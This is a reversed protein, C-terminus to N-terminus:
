NMGMKLPTSGALSILTLPLHSLTQGSKLLMVEEKGELGQGVTGQLSPPRDGNRPLLGRLIPIFQSKRRYNPFLFIHEVM